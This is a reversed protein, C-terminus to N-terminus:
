FPNRANKDLFELISERDYLIIKKSPQTFRISGEDRFKQLTTVSSIRLLHMAESADIWKDLTVPQKIQMRAVVTEILEALDNEELQYIKM